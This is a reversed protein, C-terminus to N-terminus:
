SKGGELAARAPGGTFNGSNPDLQGNHRWNEDSAYFRLVAELEAIRASAANGKELLWVVMKTRDPWTLNNGTHAEQWAKIARQDAEWCQNFVAQFEDRDEKAVELNKELEAIRAAQIEIQKWQEKVTLDYLKQAGCSVCKPGQFFLNHCESCTFGRRM